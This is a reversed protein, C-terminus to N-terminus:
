QRFLDFTMTAASDGNRYYSPRQGIKLFGSKLYCNLASLNLESVELFVKLPLHQTLRLDKLFDALLKRGSGSKKKRVALHMIEIEDMHSRYLLFGEYPQSKFFVHCQPSDLELLLEELSWASFGLCQDLSENQIDFFFQAREKSDM